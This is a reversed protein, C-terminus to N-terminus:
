GDDPEIFATVRQARRRQSAVRTVTECWERDLNCREVAMNVALRQPDTVWKRRGARACVPSCPLGLRDGKEAQCQLASAIPVYRGGQPLSGDTAVQSICTGSGRTRHSPTHTFCACRGGGTRRHRHNDFPQPKSYARPRNAFSPSEDAAGSSHERCLVESL